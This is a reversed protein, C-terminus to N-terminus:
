EIISALTNLITTTVVFSFAAWGFFMVMAEIGYFVYVAATTGTVILVIAAKIVLCIKNLM